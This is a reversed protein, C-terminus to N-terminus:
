STNFGQRSKQFKWRRRRRASARASTPCARRAPDVWTEGAYPLSLRFALGAPAEMREPLAEARVVGSSPRQRISSEYVSM